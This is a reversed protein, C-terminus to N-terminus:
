VRSLPLSLSLAFSTLYRLIMMNERENVTEIQDMTESIGGKAQWDKFEDYSAEYGFRDGARSYVAQHDSADPVLPEDLIWEDLDLDPPVPVMQQANPAIPNFQGDFMSFLSSIIANINDSSNSHSNPSLGRMVWNVIETAM